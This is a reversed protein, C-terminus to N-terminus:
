RLKDDDNSKNVRLSGPKDNLADETPRGGRIRLDEGLGAEDV